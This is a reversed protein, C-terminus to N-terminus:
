RSRSDVPDVDLAIDVSSASHTLAGVSITDVGAEAFLRITQLTIGGSAEIWCTSGGAHARILRVAGAVVTPTMNDLLVADVGLSLVERLQELSDVEVQIPLSLGTGAKASRLAAALGGAAAIHNDKILIADFLGMRHNRGGGARVAHKEFARLGPTTKRTDSVSADTGSIADVFRRTTTAVGSMRQLLNLALREGTLISAAHGRLRILAQGADVSTGDSLTTTVEIAPDLELFVLRAVDLGAVVLRERAVISGRALTGAGVVRSTTVDGTGIDEQLFPRIHRLITETDLATTSSSHFPDATMLLSRDALYFPHCGERHVLISLRRRTSQTVPRWGGAAPRRGSHRM